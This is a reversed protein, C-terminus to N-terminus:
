QKDLHKQEGVAYAEKIWELMEADIDEKRTVTFHHVHNRASVTEIKRFRPNELRRALVVHADFGNGKFQNVAAFIMRVQFGIRTKAPVVIIPGCSEILAKFQMYLDVTRPNAKHLHDDESV